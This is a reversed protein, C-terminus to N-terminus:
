RNYTGEREFEKEKDLMFTEIEWQVIETIDHTALDCVIANDLQNINRLRTLVLDRVESGLLHLGAVPHEIALAEALDQAAEDVSRNSIVKIVLLPNM